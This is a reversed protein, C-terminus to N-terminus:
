KRTINLDKLQPHIVHIKKKTFRRLQKKTYFSNAVLFNFSELKSIYNKKFNFFIINAFFAKISFKSYFYKRRFFIKPVSHIYAIKNEANISAFLSYNGSCICNKSIVSLNSFKYILFIKKIINPTKFNFM